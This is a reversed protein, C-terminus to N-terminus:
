LIINVLYKCTLIKEQIKRMQTIKLLILCETRLSQPNKAIDTQAVVNEYVKELYSALELFSGIKLRTKVKTLVELFQTFGNELEHIQYLQEQPPPEM